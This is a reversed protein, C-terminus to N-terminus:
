GPTAEVAEVLAKVQRAGRSRQWNDLAGEEATWRPFPILLHRALAIVYPEYADRFEALEAEAEDGDAFELGAGALGARMQEFEAHPLRERAAWARAAGVRTDGLARTMELVTQRATAFTMRAQFTNV